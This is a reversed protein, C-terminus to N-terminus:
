VLELFVIKKQKNKKGWGWLRIRLYIHKKKKKAQPIKEWLGNHRYFSAPFWHSMKGDISTDLTKKKNTKKM